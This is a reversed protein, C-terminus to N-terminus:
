RGCLPLFLESLAKNSDLVSLNKGQLVENLIKYYIGIYYELDKKIHYSAKLKNQQIYSLKDKNKLTEILDEIEIIESSLKKIRYDIEKEVDFM